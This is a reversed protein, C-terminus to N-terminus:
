EQLYEGHHVRAAPLFLILSITAGGIALYNVPLFGGDPLLLMAAIAPGIAAGAAHFAPAVAVCRGTPDADAIVAYQYTLSYNWFYNYGAIAAVFVALVVDTRLLAVSVVTGLTAVALPVTRGFRAGQWSATLSGLMGVSVALALGTGLQEPTFEAANGIREVYSWVCGVNLFFFLCAFLAMTAPGQKLVTAISVSPTPRGSTPLWATLLLGLVVLVALVLMLQDFGSPQTFWQLSLLGLVQFAVQGTISYAFVRDSQAHDSLVTLALSYTAGGGLSILVFVTILSEMGDARTALLLGTVQIALATRAAIRWDVSRAWFVASLASVVSGAMLASGLYGVQSDALPMKVAAAGLVVPM